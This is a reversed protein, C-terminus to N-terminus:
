DTIGTVDFTSEDVMINSHLFDDHDLLFPGDKYVSLRSAM